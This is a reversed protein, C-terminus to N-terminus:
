ADEKKLEEEKSCFTALGSKSLSVSHLVFLSLSLFDVRHCHPQHNSVVQQAVPDKKPVLGTGTHWASGLSSAPYLWVGLFLSLM